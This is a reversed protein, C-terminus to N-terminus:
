WTGGAPSCRQTLSWLAPVHPSCARLMAQTTHIWLWVWPVFSGGWELNLRHCQPPGLHASPNETGECGEPSPNMGKDLVIVFSIASPHTDKFPRRCSASAMPWLM